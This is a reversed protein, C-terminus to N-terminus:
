LASAAWGPIEVRRGCGHDEILNQIWPRSCSCAKVEVYSKGGENVVRYNDVRVTVPEREGILSCLVHVTKAKSDIKLEQVEGYRKILGNVYSRAAQSSIADKAATFM